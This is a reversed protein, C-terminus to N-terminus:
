RLEVNLSIVSFKVQLDNVQSKFQLGIVQSKVIQSKGVIVNIDAIHTNAQCM